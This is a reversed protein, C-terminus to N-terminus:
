GDKRKKAALKAHAIQRAEGAYKAIMAKSKHGSIAAIEDDTCGARALEMVGNYRLAHLDHEAMGLRKREALMIEAMRRQSMRRGRTDTLIPTGGKLNLVTPRHLSAILRDPCPITLLTGTKGQRMQISVGDFDEWNYRTWDGPRQVTGIGIELILRATVSAEARFKALAAETWPIHPAKRTTAKLTVGKAPNDARWGLDIAHDMIVKMVQVLYSAFRGENDDQLDIIHNRKLNAPNRDSYREAIFDLAKDYDARTRAALKKFRNSARYSKVLNIFTRKGSRMPKAAKLRAYEAYFDAADPFVRERVGGHDFYHYVRGKVTKSYVYPPLGRKM